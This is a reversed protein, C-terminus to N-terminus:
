DQQVINITDRKKAAKMLARQHDQVREHLIAKIKLLPELHYLLNASPLSENMWSFQHVGLREYTLQAQPYTLLPVYREPPSDVGEVGGPQSDSATAHTDVTDIMDTEKVPEMYTPGFNNVLVQHSDMPCLAHTYYWPCTCAGDGTHPNFDVFVDFRMLECMTGNREKRDYYGGGPLNVEETIEGRCFTFFKLVAQKGEPKLKVRIGSSQFYGDLIRFLYKAAFARKSLGCLSEVSSGELARTFPLEATRVDFDNCEFDSGFLHLNRRVPIVIDVDVDWPIMGGHRKSGLLSGADLHYYLGLENLATGAEYPLPALPPAAPFGNCPPVRWPLNPNPSGYGIDTPLISQAVKQSTSLNIYDKTYQQTANHVQIADAHSYSSASLM